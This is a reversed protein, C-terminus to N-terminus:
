AHKYENIFETLKDECELGSLEPMHDIIMAALMRAPTDDTNDKRPIILYSSQNKIELLEDEWVLKQVNDRNEEVLYRYETEIEGFLNTQKTNTEQLGVIHVLKNDKYMVVDGVKFKNMDKKREIQQEIRKITYYVCHASAYKEAKKKTDFRKAEHINPTDEKSSKVYLGNTKIVWKM